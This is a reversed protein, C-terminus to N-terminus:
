FINNINKNILFVFIMKTNILDGPFANVTLQGNSGCKLDLEFCKIVQTLQPLNITATIGSQLIVYSTENAVLTHTSNNDIYLPILVFPKPSLIGSM